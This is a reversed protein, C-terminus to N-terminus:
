KKAERLLEVPRARRVSRMETLYVVFGFYLAFGLLYFYRSKIPVDGPFVLKDDHFNECIFRNTFPVDWIWVSLPLFSVFIPAVLIKTSPFRKGVFFIVIALFVAGGFSPDKTLWGFLVSPVYYDAGFYKLM